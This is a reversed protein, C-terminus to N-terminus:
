YGRQVDVVGAIPQGARMARIKGAIQTISDERLTLASIHPTITIRPEQWFPHEAPLPETRFVDLTAGGIQGSQVAALLDEEVLHQGRAVNIVYAGQALRAFLGANLINETQPTLPLVNVLVRLGDLFPAQGADGYFGSVGEIARATRSWGRVPFGFGALARAIHTGLTGVGMVGITFDARRHPKLFKWTGARQQAEYADLKRFYRLAAHTVYEAMQAAMGADDLRVIPVGAPLADPAEDRLRLIGDVGAGLNFVAKLDTRGRLMEVPPRWVVAYDAPEGRSGEWTVCEAEPLAEAFGEIWPDYRGDPVYLQLKM